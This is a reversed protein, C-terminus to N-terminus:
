RIVLSHFYTTVKGIVWFFHGTLVYTSDTEFHYPEDPMKRGIMKMNMNNYTIKSVNEISGAFLNLYSQEYYGFYSCIDYDLKSKRNVKITSDKRLTMTVADGHTYVLYLKQIAMGDFQRDRSKMESSLNSLEQSVSILVTM